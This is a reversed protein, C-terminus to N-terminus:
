FNKKLKEENEPNTPDLVSSPWGSAQIKLRMMDQVYPRLLEDTWKEWHYVSYIWTARYGKKLALELEVTCITAVYGREQENHSCLTHGVDQSYEQKYRYPIGSSAEIACKHCLHFILKGNIREPIVPLYLDDPLVIFLKFIGRYPHLQDPSRWDVAENLNIVEPHGIPYFGYFNVAPYLSVVDYCTIEYKESFGNEELDCKLCHPGTRGGTCEWIMLPRMGAEIILKRREKNKDINYMSTKGNLCIENPKYLSFLWKHGHWACGLFEIALDEEEPMRRVYGDLILPEGNSLRLRFEGEPSDRHQVEVGLEHSLWKMYKIAIASQNSDKHYGIEEPKLYNIGALFIKNKLYIFNKSVFIAFVLAQCHLHHLYFMMKNLYNLLSTMFYKQFKIVAHALIRVDQECYIGIQEALCFPVNINENYWMEFNERREKGMSEPYYYKNDPLGHLRINMNKNFNWGHPFFAKGGEDIELGLAKPLKELKLAM